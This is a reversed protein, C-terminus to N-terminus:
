RYPVVESQPPPSPPNRRGNLGSFLHPARGRGSPCSPLPRMEGGWPPPSPRAASVQCHRWAGGSAAPTRTGAEPGGERLGGRGPGAPTGLRPRHTVAGAPAPHPPPRPVVNSGRPELVPPSAGSACLGCFPREGRLFSTPPAGPHQPAGRRPPAPRQPSSPSNHAEGAGRQGGTAACRAKGGEGRRGPGRRWPGLRLRLRSTHRSRAPASAATAASLHLGVARHPGSRPSAPEPARGPRPLREASPRAHPGPASPGARRGTAEDVPVPSGGGPQQCGRGAM